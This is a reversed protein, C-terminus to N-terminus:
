DGIGQGICRNFIMELARYDCTVADVNPQVWEDPEATWWSIEYGANIIIHEFLIRQARGNGERFPHIMNLDGFLQAVHTVLEARESTQFWQAQRLRDFLKSAEPVMRDTTCFRTSEKAIDVSRLQGAWDYVDAFLRKHIHQLTNLEYVRM